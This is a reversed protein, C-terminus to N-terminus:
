WNKTVPSGSPNWVALSRSEVWSTGNYVYVNKAKNWTNNNYVYVPMDGKPRVTIPCQDATWLNGATRGGAFCFCDFANNGWYSGYGMDFQGYAFNTYSSVRLIGHENGFVWFDGNTYHNGANGYGPAPLDPPASALLKMYPLVKYQKGLEKQITIQFDDCWIDQGVYSPSNTVVQGYKASGGKMEGTPDSEDFYYYGEEWIITNSWGDHQFHASVIFSIQNEDESLNGARIGCYLPVNVQSESQWTGGVHTLPRDVISADNVGM